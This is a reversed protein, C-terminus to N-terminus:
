SPPRPLTNSVYEQSSEEDKREGREDRGRDGKEQSM